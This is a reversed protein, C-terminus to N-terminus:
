GRPRKRLGEAKHAATKGSRDSRVLYEPHEPSAAVHHQKIDTPATLKREVVGETRGQPTNWTVHDGAKLSKSSGATGPKARKRATM